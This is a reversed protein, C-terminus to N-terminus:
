NGDNSGGRLKRVEASAEEFSTIFEKLYSPTEPNYKLHKFLENLARDAEKEWYNVEELTEQERRADHVRGIAEISEDSIIYRKM